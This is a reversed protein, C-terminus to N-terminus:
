GLVSLSTGSVGATSGTGFMAQLEETQLQSQYSAMQDALSPTAPSSAPQPSSGSANSTASGAAGPLTALINDLIASSSPPSATSFLGATTSTDPSGFLIDISQLQLAQDSLQVIDGPSADQLVSQVQSSSLGSSFLPSGSSALLQTLYTMGPNNSAAVADM